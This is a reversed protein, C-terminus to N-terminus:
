VVFKFHMYFYHSLSSVVADVIKIHKKMLPRMLRGFSYVYISMSKSQINLFIVRKWCSKEQEQTLNRNRILTYYIKSVEFSTQNIYHKFVNCFERMELPRTLNNQKKYLYTTSIVIAHMLDKLSSLSQNQLNNLTKYSKLWIHLQKIVITVIRIQDLSYQTQSDM